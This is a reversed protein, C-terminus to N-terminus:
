VQVFRSVLELIRSHDSIQEGTEQTVLPGISLSSLQEFLAAPQETARVFFDALLASIYDVDQRQVLSRWDPDTLLRLGGKSDRLVLLITFSVTGSDQTLYGLTCFGLLPSGTADPVKRNQTLEDNSLM